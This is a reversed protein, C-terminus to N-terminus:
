CKPGEVPYLGTAETTERCGLRKIVGTDSGSGSGRGSGSVDRRGNNRQASTGTQSWDRGMLDVAVCGDRGSSM